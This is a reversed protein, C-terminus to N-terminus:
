DVPGRIALKRCATRHQNETFIEAKQPPFTALVAFRNAIDGGIVDLDGARVWVHTYLGRREDQAAGYYLVSSV